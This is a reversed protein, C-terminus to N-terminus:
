QARAQQIWGALRGQGLDTAEDLETADAAALDGVTEIGAEALREAYAPGIGSLSDVPETSADAAADASEDASSAAPEDADSVPEKVARERETAPEREVTVTTGGRDPGSGNLGIIAKLKSILAMDATLEGWQNM